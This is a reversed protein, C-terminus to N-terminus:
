WRPSRSTAPPRISTTAAIRATSSTAPSGSRTPLARSRARESRGSPDRWYVKHAVGHQRQRKEIWAM